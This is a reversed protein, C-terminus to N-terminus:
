CYSGKSPLGAEFIRDVLNEDGFQINDAVKVRVAMLLQTHEVGEMHNQVDAEKEMGCAVGILQEMDGGAVLLGHSHGVQMDQIAHGMSYHANEVVKRPEEAEKCWEQDMDEEDFHSSYAVITHM